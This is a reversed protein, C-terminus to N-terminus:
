AGLIIAATLMRAVSRTAQREGEFFGIVVDLASAQDGTM